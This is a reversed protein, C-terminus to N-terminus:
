SDKTIEIAHELGAVRERRELLTRDGAGGAAKRHSGPFRTYTFYVAFWHTPKIIGGVSEEAPRHADWGGGTGGGGSEVSLWPEM